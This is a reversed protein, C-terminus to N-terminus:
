WHLRCGGQGVRRTASRTVVDVEPEPLRLDRLETHMRLMAVMCCGLGVLVWRLPPKDAQVVAAGGAAAARHVRRCLATHLAWIAQQADAAGGAPMAEPAAEQALAKAARAALRDAADIYLLVDAIDVTSCASHQLLAYMHSLSRQVAAAARACAVADALGCLVVAGAQEQQAALYLALQHVLHRVSSCFHLVREALGAEPSSEALLQLLQPLRSVAPLAHQVVRRRQESSQRALVADTARTCLTGPLCVVYYMTAWSVASGAAGGQQAATPTIVRELPLDEVLQAAAALVATFSAGDAAECWADVAPGLMETSLLGAVPGVAHWGCGLPRRGEPLRLAVALRRLTSLALPVVESRLWPQATIADAHPQCTDTSRAVELLAAICAAPVARLVSAEAPEAHCPPWRQQSVSSWCNAQSPQTCM